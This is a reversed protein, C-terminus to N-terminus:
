TGTRLQQSTKGGNNKFLNYYRTNVNIQLMIYKQDNPNDTEFAAEFNRETDEEIWDLLTKGDREILNLNVQADYVLFFAVSLADEFVVKRLLTGGNFGPESRCLICDYNERTWALIKGLNQEGSRKQLQYKVLYAKNNEINSCINKRWIPSKLKGCDGNVQAVSQFQCFICVTIAVIAKYWM